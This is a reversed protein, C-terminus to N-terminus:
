LRELLAPIAKKFRFFGSHAAPYFHQDYDSRISVLQINHSSLAARLQPTVQNWLGVSPEALCVAQVQQEIAWTVVASVESFIRNIDPLAQQLCAWRFQYVRDSIGHASYAIKPILGAVSCINAQQPLWDAASLDDEGLLLGIRGSSPATNTKKVAVPLPKTSHSNPQVADTALQATTCIRGATFKKINEATALYMKGATHLGAVWRWSLTNSAADGDLLHQHFFAAGLTWPLKLTHVWISAFWMRAHNHLYGTAILERTWLNLCDIHSEAQLVAWYISHKSQQALDIKLQQQYDDWVAPHTELWGKWYTRWCVEDIFKSAASTSHQQLVASLVTWEALLRTRLWPSLQSVNDRRDPGYDYNRGSTYAQGASPLFTALQQMAAAQTPIFM